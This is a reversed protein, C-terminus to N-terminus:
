NKQFIRVYDVEMTVPLASEDVGNYGGWDGGWALNLIPYFAVHFPWTDDNNKKDNPFYLQKKGDVYTQIYDATWELTYVHFEGEAGPCDMSHTKQTNNPHNYATCHISSSVQNPDVGVEEMIDIEGCHPWGTYNVPMMWWAPWTGKGKPLKIRAEFIGYTFGVNRNGYVRASYVKGNEKFCNINLHGDKIETVRKGSPSKEIVYNQLENNVWGSNQKEHTWKTNDLSTGESFEDNWVLHYGEPTNITTDDAGNQNVTVTVEELGCSVVVETSRSKTDENAATTVEATKNDIKKVSIWDAKSEVKWDGSGIVGFTMTEGKSESYLVKKDVGLAGAVNIPITVRASGSKVILSANIPDTSTNAKITLKVKGEKTASNETSLTYWKTSLPNEVFADWGSKSSKVDVVYEGGTAPSNIEAVSCNLTVENGGSETGEDGGCSLMFICSALLCAFCLIKKM